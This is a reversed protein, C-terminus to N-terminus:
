GKKKNGDGDTIPIGNFFMVGAYDGDGVSLGSKRADLHQMLTQFGDLGVDYEGESSYGGRVHTAKVGHINIVDGIM